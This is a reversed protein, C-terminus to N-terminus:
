TEMLKMITHVFHLRLLLIQFSTFFNICRMPLLRNNVFNCIYFVLLNNEKALQLLKKRKEHSITVGTPNQYTPITYLFAIKRGKQRLDKIKAELMTLNIGDEEVDVSELNVKFDRFLLLALFYTPNEIIVTDGNSSFLNCVLSLGSSIGCTAFLQNM